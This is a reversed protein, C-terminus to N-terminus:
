SVLVSVMRKKFVYLQCGMWVLIYCSAFGYTTSNFVIGLGVGFTPHKTSASIIATGCFGTAGGCSKFLLVLGTMAGVMAAIAATKWVLNAGLYKAFFTFAAGFLTVLLRGLAPGLGFM